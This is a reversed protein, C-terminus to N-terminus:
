SVGADNKKDKKMEELREKISWLSPNVSKYRATHIYSYMMMAMFQLEDETVDSPFIVKMRGIKFIELGALPDDM